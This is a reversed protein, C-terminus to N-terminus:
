RRPRLEREVENHFLSGYHKFHLRRTSKTTNKNRKGKKREGAEEEERKKGRHHRSALGVLNKCAKM